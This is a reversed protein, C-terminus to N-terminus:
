PARSPRAHCIDAVGGADARRLRDRTAVVTPRDAVGRGPSRWTGPGPARVATGAREAVRALVPWSASLARQGALAAAPLSVGVCGSRLGRDVDDPDLGDLAIPAWAAFDDPLARVGRLHARILEVASDRPLAEIGIPSSLAVLALDVGDSRVLAARRLPAEAEVDIVYPREDASHLVTLGDVRRIFPLRDRAALAELLPETWIHQHVDIQM